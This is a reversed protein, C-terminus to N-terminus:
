VCRSTYLLCSSRSSASGPTSPTSTMLVGLARPSVAATLDAGVQQLNLGLAAVKDRDIAIETQPQDIKVDILPPFAFMGSEMAKKQVQQAIQLIEQTDATSAIIFEVPFQGGGPLAPPTIPFMQIGPILQM